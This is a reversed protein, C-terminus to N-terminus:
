QAKVRQTRKALITRVVSVAQRGTQMVVPESAAECPNPRSINSWRAPAPTTIMPSESIPENRWFARQTREALVATPNTGGFRRNPENPWFAPRRMTPGDIGRQEPHPFHPFHPFAWQRRPTSLRPPAKQVEQVKQLM